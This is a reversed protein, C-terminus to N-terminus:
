RTVTRAVDRAAKRTVYAGVPVRDGERFVYWRPAGDGQGFSGMAHWAMARADRRRDRVMARM